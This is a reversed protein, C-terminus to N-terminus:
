DEFKKFLQRPEYVNSVKPKDKTILGQLLGVAKSVGNIGKQISDMDVNKITDIISSITFNNEKQNNAYKKWVAEDEGYLSWIEYFKQWTMEGTTVYNILEPKSHVFKKFEEKM